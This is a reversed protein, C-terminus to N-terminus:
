ILIRDFMAIISEAPHHNRFHKNKLMYFRARKFMLCLEYYDIKNVNKNKKLWKKLAFYGDILNRKRTEFLAQVVINVLKDRDLGNLYGKNCVDIHGLLMEFASSIPANLYPTSKISTRCNRCYQDQTRGTPHERDYLVEELKKLKGMMVLNFTFIHDIGMVPEFPLLKDLVSARFVGYIINGYKFTKVLTKVRDYTDDEEYSYLGGIDVSNTGESYCLVYDKNNDLFEICKEFYQPYIIDNSSKMVIYEYDRIGLCKNYNAAIGVNISNRHVIIRSDKKEYEKLIEFTNDTSCNDFVHLHFDTFTQNLVSDLVQAIVKEDNYVLLGIGLKAM